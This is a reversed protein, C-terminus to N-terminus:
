LMGGLDRERERRAAEVVDVAAATGADEQSEERTLAQQVEAL